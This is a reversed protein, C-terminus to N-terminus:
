RSIPHGAASLARIASELNQQEVMLYDTPSSCIWHISIHRRALPRAFAKVVGFVNPPNFGVEFM